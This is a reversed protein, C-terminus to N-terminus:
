PAVFKAICPECWDMTRIEQYVENKGCKACLRKAQGLPLEPTERLGNKIMRKRRRM